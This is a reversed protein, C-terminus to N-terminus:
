KKNVPAEPPVPYQKPQLEAPINDNGYVTITDTPDFLKLPETPWHDAVYRLGGGMLRYMGKGKAGTEDTGEANPDWFLIGANDLGAPDDPTNPWIGHNGFSIVTRRTPPDGPFAPPAADLGAKFAEPTLKPGALQLGAFLLEVNGKVIAYNNDTPPPTGFWWQHLTYSDQKEKPLRAPTLQLGFAHAWQKQDFTRAFVNTDALVTGSMVWEPFYNQKTMETTLYRPFIPDGTFIISTANAQKLKAAITRADAQLSPLNLYYDVHSKVDAGAGKVQKELYDWSSTFQGDPTNYTLLTFTRPKGKQDPGAWEAPKGLLQKKILETVMSVTQDPTPGPPYLYPQNDLIYKQPQAIICTSICAIKKQALEDAFERAQAPGGMVAFVNKAAARDADARAAVADSLTGTGDIQVMQVKRGYLEYNGAYIDAYDKYAKATAEPTDYAGAAKLLADGLPDAKAVYFGIRITDATVGPTTAGGNDGSAKPVCPPPNIIPIAVRGTEPNCHDQWTYKDLQGKTKADNYFLPIGNVGSQTAVDGGGVNVTKKKDDGSNVALAVAVIAAIAVIAIFPAYRVWPSRRPRPAQQMGM